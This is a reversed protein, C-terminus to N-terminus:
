PEVEEIEVVASCSASDLRGEWYHDIMHQRIDEDTDDTFTDEALKHREGDETVWLLTARKVPEPAYLAAELRAIQTDSLHEEVANQPACQDFLEVATQRWFDRDAEMEDLAHQLREATTETTSM